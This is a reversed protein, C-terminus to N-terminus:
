YAQRLDRVLSKYSRYGEEYAGDSVLQTIGQLRGYVSKWIERSDNRSEITEVVQPAIRGYLIYDRKGRRSALIHEKTLTKMARLELSDEPLNLARLCATTIFCCAGSSGSGYEHQREANRWGSDYEKKRESPPNYSPHFFETLPNSDAEGGCKSYDKEGQNHAWQKGESDKSM